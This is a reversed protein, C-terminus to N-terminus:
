NQKVTFLKNYQEPQEAKFALQADLSLKQFDDATKVESNGEGGEIQASLSKSNPASKIVTELLSPNAIGLNVLEQEQPKLKPNAKIALAVKDKVATLKATEQETKLNSYKLEAAVKEAHLKVIEASVATGDLEAGLALGLAASAASELKIKMEKTNQNPINKPTTKGEVSLCLKQVEDDSLPKDSDDMYLYIANANSPVAVISVEYLECKVLILKGAIYKLDDRKFWVGMSCSKIFGREVKGAIKAADEDEIDFVPLGTLLGKEVKVDDWSGLVSHTSNYHSNLMVPNKTFRKLGIGETPITFGYSNPVSEDNFVFRRQKKPQNKPM